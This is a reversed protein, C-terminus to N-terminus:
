PKAIEYKWWLYTHELIIESGSLACPVTETYIDEKDTGGKVLANGVRLIEEKFQDASPSGLVNKSKLNISIEVRRLKTHATLREFDSLDPTAYQWNLYRHVLYSWETWITINIQQINSDESMSDVMRNVVAMTRSDLATREGWDKVVLWPFLRIDLHLGRVQSPTILPFRYESKLTQSTDDFYWTSHQHLQQVGEHLIQKNTLLWPHTANPPLQTSLLSDRQYSVAYYRGDYRQTIRPGASWLQHYIEDRLERPLKLFRSESFEDVSQLRESTPKTRKEPPTRPKPPM